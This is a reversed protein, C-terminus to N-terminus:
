SNRIRDSAHRIKDWDIVAVWGYRSQDFKMVGDAEIDDSIGNEDLDDSYFIAGLGDKFELGLRQLDDFTGRCDLVVWCETELRVIGNFDAYIRPKAMINNKGENRFKM